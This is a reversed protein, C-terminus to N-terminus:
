TARRREDCCCARSACSSWCSAAAAPGAGRLPRGRHPRVAARGPGRDSLRRGLRAGGRRGRGPLADLFAASCARLWLRPVAVITGSARAAASRSWRPRSSTGGAPLRARAPRPGRRPGAAQRVLPGRLDPDPRRRARDGRAHPERGAGGQARGARGRCRRAPRGRGASSGEAVGRRGCGAAARVARRGGAAAAGADPQGLGPGRPPARRGAASPPTM